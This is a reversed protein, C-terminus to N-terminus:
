KKKKATKKHHTASRGHKHGFRANYRRILENTIDMDPKAWVISDANLIVDLNNEQAIKAFLPQMKQIIKGTLEKERAMLQKQLSVYTQQLDLYKRQLEEQKEKRKAPDMTAARKDLDEKLSRLEDQRKDLLKQKDKFDAQLQTKAARGEDVQMLARQVDVVGITTGDARARSAAGLTLGVVLLGLIPRIMQRKM